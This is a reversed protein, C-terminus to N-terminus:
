RPTCHVHDINHRLIETARRVVCPVRTISASPRRLPFGSAPHSFQKKTGLYLLCCLIWKLKVSQLASPCLSAITSRKLDCLSRVSLIEELLFVCLGARVTEEPIRELDPLHDEEGTSIFILSREKTERIERTAANMLFKYAPRSAFARRRCIYRRGRFKGRVNVRPEDSRSLRANMWFHMRCTKLRGRTCHSM